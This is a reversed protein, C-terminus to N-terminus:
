GSKPTTASSLITAQCSLTIRNRMSGDYTTEELGCSFFANNQPLTSGMRLVSSVNMDSGTKNSLLAFYQQSRSGLAPLALSGVQLNDSAIAVDEEASEKPGKGETVAINGMQNDM